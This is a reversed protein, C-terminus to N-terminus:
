CGDSSAAALHDDVEDVRKVSYTGSGTRSVSLGSRMGISSTNEISPRPVTTVPRISRPMILILSSDLDDTEDVRCLGRDRTDLHEVFLERFTM